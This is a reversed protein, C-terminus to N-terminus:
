RNLISNEMIYKEAEEKQETQILYLVYKSHPYFRLAVTGDPMRTPKDGFIEKAYKVCLDNLIDYSEYINECSVREDSLEYAFGGAYSPSGYSPILWRVSSDKDFGNEKLWKSFKLSTHTEKM